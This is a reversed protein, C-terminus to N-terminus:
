QDFEVQGQWYNDMLGSDGADEWVDGLGQRTPDGTEPDRLEPSLGPRRAHEGARYTARLLEPVIEPTGGPLTVIQAPHPVRGDLIRERIVHTEPRPPHGAKRWLASGFGVGVALITLSVAVVVVALLRTTAEDGARWLAYVVGAVLVIVALAVLGAATEKGM